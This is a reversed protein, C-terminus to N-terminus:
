LIRWYQWLNSYRLDKLARWSCWSPLKQRVFVLLNYQWPIQAKTYSRLFIFIKTKTCPKCSAKRTSYTKQPIMLNLMEQMLMWTYSWCLKKSKKSRHPKSFIWKKWGTMSVERWEHERSSVQWNCGVWQIIFIAVSLSLFPFYVM